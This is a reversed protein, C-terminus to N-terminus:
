FAAVAQQVMSARQQQQQQQQQRQQQHMLNSLPVTPSTTTATSTTTTKTTKKQQGQAQQQQGQSLLLASKLGFRADLVPRVDPCSELELLLDFVAPLTNDQADNYFSSVLIGNEPHTIFSLPNNDILVTRRTNLTSSSSTLTTSSKNNPPLSLADLDKLYANQQADYRCHERYWVQSFMEGHPDLQNLVPQAYVSMAATFVHTEFKSSVKQLFDRLGPRVNVHVLDGTSPLHVRFHDVVDTNSNMNASNRQRQRAQLQHAYVQANSPSSLFQSHIMCEDMDLIVVLDSEYQRAQAPRFESGVNSSSCSASSQSQLSLQSSSPSQKLLDSVHFAVSRGNVQPRYQRLWPKVNDNNNNNSTNSSSRTTAYSAATLAHSSQCRRQQQQQQQTSPTSCTSSSSSYRYSGHCSVSAMLARSVLIRANPQLTLRASLQRAFTLSSALCRSPLM